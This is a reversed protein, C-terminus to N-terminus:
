HHTRPAAAAAQWPYVYCTSYICFSLPFGYQGGIAKVATELVDDTAKPTAARGANRKAADAM